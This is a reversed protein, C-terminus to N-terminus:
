TPQALVGELIIKLTNMSYPKNIVGSFGASRSKKDESPASDGSSLISKISANIKLIAALTQYGDMGAPVHWDLIVLDFAQGENQHSQFAAIAEPGSKVTYVEYGLFELMKAIVTRILDEDDMVLIKTKAM